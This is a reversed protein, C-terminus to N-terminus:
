RAKRLRAALAMYDRSKQRDSEGVPGESTGHRGRGAVRIMAASRSERFFAADELAHVIDALEADSLELNM